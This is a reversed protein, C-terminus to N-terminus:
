DEEASDTHKKRKAAEIVQGALSWKSHGLAPPAFHYAAYSKVQPMHLLDVRGDGDFDLPAVNANSLKITGASAGLVGQVELQEVNELGELQYLGTGGIIGITTRSPAM